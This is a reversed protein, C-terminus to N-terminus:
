DPDALTPREAHSVGRSNLANPFFSVAGPFPPPKSGPPTAARLRHNLAAVGGAGPRAVTRRGVGSPDCRRRTAHQTSRAAVGGPDHATRATTTAPPTAASSWRSIA